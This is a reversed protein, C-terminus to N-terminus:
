PKRAEYIALLDSFRELATKAAALATTRAADDSGELAAVRSRAESEYARLTDGYTEFLSLAAADTAVADLVFAGFTKLFDTQMAQARREREKRAEEELQEATRAYRDALARLKKQLDRAEEASTPEGVRSMLERIEAERAAKEAAKEEKTM